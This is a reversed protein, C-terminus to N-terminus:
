DDASDDKTEALTEAQASREALVPLRARLWAVLDDRVEAQNLENFVEHRADTYVVVEVDTLGSREVYSEALKRVSKEGGLSDDEGIMILLPIDRLGKGPRGFLRLGDRPGFLKLVDANFTLADDLFAQSIAEDRSLWEYGTDGLSKHRSNLDGSNMYGPMRYATGTLIAAAYGVSYKNLVKQVLLSGLSHGLLVIPLGPHDDRIIGSLQTLDDITAPIGGPGLKGLKSVDGNWQELGTAGHGRLDSAYVAIGANVLEHVLLEYRRAYEGLGHVLQVVARPAGPQWVYYHVTVEHADVFTLDQRVPIFKPM